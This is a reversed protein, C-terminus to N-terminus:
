TAIAPAPPAALTGSGSSAFCGDHGVRGGGYGDRCFAHHACEDFILLVFRGLQLARSPLPQNMLFYRVEGTRAEM